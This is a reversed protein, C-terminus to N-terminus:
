AGVRRLIVSGLGSHNGDLEGVDRRLRFVQQAGPFLFDDTETTRISRRERRGHGREDARASTQTWDTDPGALLHAAAARTLPQNGKLV